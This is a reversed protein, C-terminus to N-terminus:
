LHSSVHCAFLLNCTEACIGFNPWFNPETTGGSWFPFPFLWNFARMIMLFRTKASYLWIVKCRKTFHMSLNWLVTEQLMKWHFLVFNWTLSELFARSTGFEEAFSHKPGTSRGSARCFGGVPSLDLAASVALPKINCPAWSCFCFFIQLCLNNRVWKIVFDSRVSHSVIQLGKRVM